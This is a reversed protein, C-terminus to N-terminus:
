SAAFVDDARAKILHVDSNDWDLTVSMGAQVTPSGGKAVQQVILSSGLSEVDVICRITQGMFVAERVIGDVHTRTGVPAAPDGSAAIDIIIHEPRLLAAYSQGADDNQTVSASAIIFGTKQVKLRGTTGSIFMGPILNSEGLFRAAFISAPKRYLEQPTGYQEIAGDRMLAIRDSLVMAENQDHTVYVVTAGLSRQLQRIEWQLEQKLRVDLAGMPEDMLLVSPEFILARALAVRQQQGGSLKSPKRNALSSLQVLKLARDVRKRIEDKPIGRVRLPYGVNGAVTMHPFLAYNQFVIGMDRERGPPLSTVDRKGVLIKGEDPVVFGALAMLTSTKGSGSPGLLTVFEGARIDMSVGTLVKTDGITKKIDQLHVSSSHNSGRVGGSVQEHRDLMLERGM